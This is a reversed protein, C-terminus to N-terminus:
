DEERLFALLGDKTMGANHVLVQVAGLDAAVREALVGFHDPNRLDLPYARGGIEAALAEAAERRERYTIAVQAGDRALARAIAGGIGGSAGSVLAIKGDLSSRAAM